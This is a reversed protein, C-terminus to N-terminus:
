ELAKDEGNLESNTFILYRYRHEFFCINCDIIHLMHLVLNLLCAIQDGYIM